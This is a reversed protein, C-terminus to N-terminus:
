KQQSACSVQYIYPRTGVAGSVIKKVFAPVEMMVDMRDLRPGTPTELSATVDRGQADKGKWVYKLSTPEDWDVETDKKMTPFSSEGSASALIVSSDDSIAGVNVVGSGYSPPTTFEMMTASINPGQFNLFNWKSAIGGNVNEM